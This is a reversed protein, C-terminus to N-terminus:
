SNGCSGCDAKKRPATAATDLTVVTAARPPLATAAQQQKLGRALQAAHVSLLLQSVVEAIPKGEWRYAAANMKASTRAFLLGNARCYERVRSEDVFQSPRDGGGSEPLQDVKNEVVMISKISDGAVDRLDKLWGDLKEFSEPEAVDYVLLAGDARRYHSRTMARYREQGATDWIQAKIMKNTSLDPEPIYMTGFEAELTAAPRDSFAGTGGVGVSLVSSKGVGTTGLLILKYVHDIVYKPQPQNSLGVVSVNTTSAASTTSALTPPLLTAKPTASADMSRNKKAAIGPSLPPPPLVDHEPVEPTQPEAEKLLHEIQGQTLSKRAYMGEKLEKITVVGADVDVFRLKVPRPITTLRRIVDECPTGLLNTDNIHTLYLGARLALHSQDAKLSANYQQAPGWNAPDLTTPVDLLQITYIGNGTDPLPAPHFKLGFKESSFQVRFAVKWPLQNPEEVVM